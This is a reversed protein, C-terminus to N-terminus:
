RDGDLAAVTAVDIGFQDARSGPDEGVADACPSEQRQVQGLQVDRPQSHHSGDIIAWRDGDAFSRHDGRAKYGAFDM